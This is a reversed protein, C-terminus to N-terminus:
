FYKTSTADHDINGAFQHLFHPLPRGKYSMRNPTDLWERYKYKYYEQYKQPISLDPRFKIQLPGCFIPTVEDFDVPKFFNVAEILTSAIEIVKMSAHEESGLSMRISNLHSCLNTLWLVNEIDKQLWLNCPHNLHTPKYVDDWKKRWPAYFRAATSLMQASELIMKHLHQDCHMSAAIKPNPDLFFINM